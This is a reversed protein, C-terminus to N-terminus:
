DIDIWGRNNNVSRPWTKAPQHGQPGDKRIPFMGESPRGASDIWRNMYYHDTLVFGLLPHFGDCLGDPRGGMM